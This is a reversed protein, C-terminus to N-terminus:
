WDTPMGFSPKPQAPAPPDLRYDSAFDGTTGPPELGARANECPRCLKHKSPDLWNKGCRPCRVEGRCRKCPSHPESHITLGRELGKDVCERGDQCPYLPTESGDDNIITATGDKLRIFESM